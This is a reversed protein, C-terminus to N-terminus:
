LAKLCTITNHWVDIKMCQDTLYIVIYTYTTCVCVIHKQYVRLEWTNGPAMSIKSCLVCQQITWVLIYAYKLHNLELRYIPSLTLPSVPNSATYYYHIFYVSQFNYTNTNGRTYVLFYLCIIINKNYKHNLHPFFSINKM